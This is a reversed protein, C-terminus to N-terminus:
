RSSSMRQLAQFGEILAADVVAFNNDGGFCTEVFEAEDEHESRIPGAANFFIRPCDVPTLNMEIWYRADSGTFEGRCGIYYSVAEKEQDIVPFYRESEEGDLSEVALPSALLEKVREVRVPWDGQLLAKQQESAPTSVQNPSRGHAFDQSM